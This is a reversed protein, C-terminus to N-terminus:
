WHKHEPWNWWKYWHNEVKRISCGKLVTGWTTPVGGGVMFSTAVEYSIKSSNHIMIYIETNESPRLHGWHFPWEANVWLNLVVSKRLGSGLELDSDTHKKKGWNVGLMEWLGAQLGAEQMIASYSAMVINLYKNIYIYSYRFSYTHTHTELGMM